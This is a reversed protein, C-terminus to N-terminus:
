GRKAMHKIEKKIMSKLKRRSRMSLRMTKSHSRKLGMKRDWDHVAKQSKYSQTMAATFKQMLLKRESAAVVPLPPIRMTPPVLPVSPWPSPPPPSKINNREQNGGVESILSADDDEQEPEMGASAFTGVSAMSGRHDLKTCSILAGVAAMSSRRAVEAYEDFFSSGLIDLGLSSMCHKRSGPKKPSDVKCVRMNFNDNEEATDDFNMSLFHDSYGGLDGFSFHKSKLTELSCNDQIPTNMHQSGAFQGAATIASNQAALRAFVFSGEQMSRFQNPRTSMLLM